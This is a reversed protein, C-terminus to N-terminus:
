EKDLYKHVDYGFHLGFNEIIVSLEALSKRGFNSVNLLDKEEKVVLESITKINAAQLCNRSRVSLELEDMPTLLIKKIRQSENLEEVTVKDSEADPGIAIFLQINDKLIKAATSVAVEPTISGDTEVELILKEFDTQQGVRTAEVITRVNTIPTFIADIAITGVPSNPIKNEEAPSYGKGRAITLTIELRANEKSLTALHFDPNLIEVDPAM